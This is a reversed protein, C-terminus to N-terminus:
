LAVMASDIKALLATAEQAVAADRGHRLYTLDEQRRGLLGHLVGLNFDIRARLAGDESFQPNDIARSLLTEARKAATRKATILFLLNKLVVRWPPKRDGRLLALYFEALFIRTWDAYVRYGLGTEVRDILAELCRVGKRLNGQLLM